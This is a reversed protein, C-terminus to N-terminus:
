IKGTSIISIIQELTAKKTPVLDAKFRQDLLSGFIAYTNNFECLLSFELRGSAYPFIAKAFVLSDALEETALANFTKRYSIVLKDKPNPIILNFNLCLFLKTYESSSSSQKVLFGYPSNMKCIKQIQKCTNNILNVNEIDRFELIERIAYDEIKM